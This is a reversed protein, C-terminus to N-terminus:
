VEHGRPRFLDSGREGGGRERESKGELKREKM